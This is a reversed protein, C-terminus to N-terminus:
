EQEREFFSCWLPLQAAYSNESATQLGNRILTERLSTDRLIQLTHAALEEPSMSETLLGNVGHAILEPAQGVPTSVLPVGSAMSELVAKPGGEQRSSVMYADIAHYCRALEDLSSFHQHVFPIGAQTLRQKVYGRAPGSLLVFLEPVDNRLISLADCLIDPGKVMKPTLGDGWGSGDKQFSGIVIANDPIGLTSRAIRSREANKAVFIAPDIGIYIKVLKEPPIGGELLINRIREHTIQVRFLKDKKAVLNAYLKDFVPDGEGPYGHYYPISLKARLLPTRKLLKLAKYRDACFVHQRRGLGRYPTVTMGIQKAIWTLQRADESLSWGANDSVISIHDFTRNLGLTDTFFHKMM